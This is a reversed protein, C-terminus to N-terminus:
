HTVLRNISSGQAKSVGYLVSWEYYLKRTDGRYFERVDIPLGISPDVITQYSGYWAKPPEPSRAAIALASKHIAFGAKKTTDADITGNYEYIDFGHVRPIRNERIVEPSGYAYAAQVAADKALYAYYSPPIVLSRGTIPVKNTSFTAALDAIIDPTMESANCNTYGSYNAVVILAMVDAMITEYVTTLAPQIFLNVLEVDSYTRELDTFEMSVGKYKNLTVTVATSAGAEPTVPSSSFDVAGPQTPIRSTVSVGRPMTEASFDTAFATIPYRTTQLADITLQAIRALNVGNLAM